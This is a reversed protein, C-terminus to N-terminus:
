PLLSAGTAPREPLLRRFYARAETSLGTPDEGLFSRPLLRTKGAVSELDVRVPKCEGGQLRLAVSGGGAACVDVAHAGAAFAECQDLPSIAGIFGRPLYGFTDVRARKGPFWDKLREQLALGLDGGSLQTNGHADVELRDRTILSEALPRGKDDGVGESIAVVCRGRKAFVRAIDDRLREVSFAIEPVYVLHPADAADRQWGAASAALFGAHRGMVIGVYIGPLARFDLDISVFASAVFLAASIFGPTHDNEVLDNDITKPAHTFAIDKGAAERLILQTGATDNGGIYIFSTAKARRLGALVEACYAADPKDRTSGLAAGPTAAIRLLEAESLAALDAFDGKRVGRVGHRAGLVACKPYRRRAEIVAGVLTQNIVATPGGGQAIVFTESMTQLGRTSALQSFRGETM